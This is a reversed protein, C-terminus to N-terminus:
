KKIFRVNMKHKATYCATCKYCKSRCTFENKRNGTYEKKLQVTALRKITPNYHKTSNDVSYFLSLNKPKKRFDFQYSRTYATFYINPLKRIISYWKDIYDQSYFDGIGHIRVKHFNPTYRRHHNIDHIINDVFDPSLSAKYNLSAKNISPKFRYHHRNGYCYKKCDKTIGPCTKKIPLIFNGISTGLKKNTNTILMTKKKKPKMM